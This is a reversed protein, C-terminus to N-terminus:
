IETLSHLRVKARRLREINEILCAPDRTLRSYSATKIESIENARDEVFGLMGAFEPRMAELASQGADVFIEVVVQAKTEADARIGAIPRAKPQQLSM